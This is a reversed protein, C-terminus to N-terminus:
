CKKPTGNAGCVRLNSPQRPKTGDQTVNVSQGAITLTGTRASTATNAAISYTVTGNQSGSSGATVTIWPASSTATWACGSTTTVTATATGAGSALSQSLPAVTYSCSVGSQTVTVMRGAVTLTGTRGVAATTPAVTYNVIGNGTGSGAAITMWSVNSIAIWACGSFRHRRM